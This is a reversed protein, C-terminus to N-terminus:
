FLWYMLNAMRSYEENSFVEGVPRVRGEKDIALPGGRRTALWRGDGGDVLSYTGAKLEQGAYERIAKEAEQRTVM